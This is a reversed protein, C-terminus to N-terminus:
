GRKGVLVQGVEKLGPVGVHGVDRAFKNFGLLAVAQAILMFEPVRCDIMPQLHVAEICVFHKSWSMVVQVVEYRPAEDRVVLQPVEHRGVAADVAGLAVM